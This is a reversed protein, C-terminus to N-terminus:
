NKSKWGNRVNKAIKEEIKQKKMTKEEITEENKTKGIEKKNKRIKAKIERWNTGLKKQNKKQWSKQQNEAVKKGAKRMKSM